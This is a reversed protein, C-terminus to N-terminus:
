FRWYVGATMELDRAPQGDGPHEDWRFRLVEGRLGARGPLPVRMGLAGSLSPRVFRNVVEGSGGRALLGVSTGVYPQVYALPLQLQAGVDAFMLPTASAGVHIFPDPRVHAYGVRLEARLFRSLSHDVAAGVLPFLDDSAYDYVFGGGFVSVSSRLGAQPNPASLEGVPLTQAVAPAALLCLTLPFVTMWFQAKIM